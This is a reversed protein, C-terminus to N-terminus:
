LPTSTSATSKGVRGLDLFLGVDDGLQTDNSLKTAVNCAFEPWSFSGNPNCYQVVCAGDCVCVSTTKFGWKGGKPKTLSVGRNSMKDYNGSKGGERARGVCEWVCVGASSPVYYLTWYTTSGPSDWYILSDGSASYYHDRNCLWSLSLCLM